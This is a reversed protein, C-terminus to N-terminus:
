TRYSVQVQKIVLALSIDPEAAAAAVFMVGAIINVNVANVCPEPQQLLFHRAAHARATTRQLHLSSRLASM